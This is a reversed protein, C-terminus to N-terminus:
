HGFSGDSIPTAAERTAEWRGLLAVPVEVPDPGIPISPTQRATGLVACLDHNIRLRSFADALPPVTM